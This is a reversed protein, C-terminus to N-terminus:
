MYILLFTIIFLLVELGEFGLDQALNSWIM